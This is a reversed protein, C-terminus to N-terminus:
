FRKPICVPGGRNADMSFSITASLIPLNVEDSSRSQLKQLFQGPVAHNEPLAV